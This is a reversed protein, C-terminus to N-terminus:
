SAPLDENEDLFRYLTARGVGLLRAAKSKNGGAKDLAELVSHPNLKKTPGRKAAVDAVMGSFEMPLHEPMIIKGRSRVIAYQVANELERVNGPFHYQMLVSLAEESFPPLTGPHMSAIKSLFHEVLIPIDNKKNRLPPLVVPIVNLRYYVDERFKNYIPLACTQVGTV